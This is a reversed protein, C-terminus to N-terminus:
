YLRLGTYNSGNGIFNEIGDNGSSAFTSDMRNWTSGEFQIKVSVWGKDKLYVENWAHNIDSPSVTGVILRTPIGQSRLMGALLSAYDFCIGKSSILTEDINPLYGTQVSSAKAKDYRVNKIIYDYIAAIKEAETKKGATLENAKQVIRWDKQYMVYQNPSLFPSLPDNLKVDLTKEFLPIYKNGSTNEMVRVKYSGDGLQLPYIEYIGGNKLDYNYTSNGKIIQVKLRKKSTDNKIFIYGKAIDSVDIVSGNKEHKKEGRPSVTKDGMAGASSLPIEHDEIVTEESSSIGLIMETEALAIHDMGKEALSNITELSNTMPPAFLMGAVLLAAGAVLHKKNM